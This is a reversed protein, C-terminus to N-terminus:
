RKNKKKKKKKRNRRKEARNKTDDFEKFTGIDSEKVGWLYVKSALAPTAFIFLLLKTVNIATFMSILIGIGLTVAFGKIIGTGFTFLIACTILSSINSDRISTWARKFGVEIANNLSKGTKLEEKFREFILVNADVAMGISLIVGAIGALTLTVGLLKFAAIIIVAYMLLALNAVFGPLRYYAIIFLGLIILGIIGAKIGQALANQGLTAGINSQGILIVPAPIAGTNLNMALTQASEQNFNGTIVAEGDTIASQVVPTSIPQNDLFIAVPKGLNRTTIDGFLDKGEDNFQINVSFNLSQDYDVSAHKFQQGTLGTEKWGMPPTEPKKNRRIIQIKYKPNEVNVTNGEEDTSTTMENTKELLKVIYYGDDGVIVDDYVQDVALSSVPDGLTVGMEDITQFDLIGDNNLASGESYEKVLNTFDDGKIARALAEKTKGLQSENYSTVEALEEPTYETAQEKFELQVTKGVIRIAEDIDKIGPLEVIVFYNGGIKSSQIVPEAVGLGDVRNRMVSIIGDVITEQDSLPVKSM